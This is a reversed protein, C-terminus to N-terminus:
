KTGPPVSPAGQGPPKMPGPGNPNKQPPPGTRTNDPGCGGALIAAALFAWAARRM